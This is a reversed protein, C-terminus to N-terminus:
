TCKSQGSRCCHSSGQGGDTGLVERRCLCSALIEVDAAAVAIDKTVKILSAKRTKGLRTLSEYLGHLGWVNNLRAKRRPLSEGSEDHSVMGLDERYVVEAEEVRDQELLLAGLAHRTPQLWAPPDAYPLEDELKVAERLTKFALEHNGKRYELEGDIMKSAVLLVEVDRSPLSNLRSYPVLKRATHFEDRATEAESIRNLVALAIARAYRTMAITSPYLTTDTPIPLDLIENWRGFRVYTHALSGLQSEIWDALPPSSISLIEPTIIKFLEQSASYAVSFRGSMLGGYVTTYYSHARYITYLSSFHSTRSFFKNDAIIANNNSEILRSWDGIAADIHTAMHSMHSGDPVITRLRNAASLAIEPFPSMEMLHIYLHPLAPHKLGQDTKMAPEIAERAEITGYGIPEGTRMDWLARPSVCILAEVFFAVVDMDDPYVQYVARTAKAYQLELESLEEATSPVTDGTPFRAVLAQILASEVPSSADDRLSLARHLADKSRHISAERDKPDFRIWTKNYNPGTAFAIGWYAMACGPDSEAAREFCRAAEDHNYSYAWILGRNFWLQATPSSTTVKREWTGLDFAFDDAM